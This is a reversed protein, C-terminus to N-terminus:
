YEFALGLRDRSVTQEANGVAAGPEAFRRRGARCDKDIAFALERDQVVEQALDFISVALRDTEDPLGADALRSHKGLEAPLDAIPPRVPDFSPAEGIASRDRIQQNEIQQAAVASDELGVLGIDNGPLNMRTKALDAHVRVLVPQNQEM